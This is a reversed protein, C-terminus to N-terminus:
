LQEEEISPCNIKNKMCPRNQIWWLFTKVYEKDYNKGKFELFGDETKEIKERLEFIEIKRLKSGEIM